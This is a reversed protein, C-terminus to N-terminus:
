VFTFDEGTFGNPIVAIQDSTGDLFIANDTFDYEAFSGTLQIEDVGPEFDQIIATGEGQYYILEGDGLVFTDQGNGGTLTDFETSGPSVDATNVGVLIDNGSMGTLIDNGAGGEIYNDANNGTVTDDNPTTIVNVFNEVATTFTEIEPVNLVTVQNDSLDVDLSAVGTGTSGDITNELDAPAIVLENGFLLQDTGYSGKDIVGAVEYAIAEDLGLYSITDVGDGGSITDNGFGGIILNDTNDGFISDNGETGSIDAPTPPLNITQAQLIASDTEDQLSPLNFSQAQRIGSDTEDQPFQHSTPNQSQRNFRRSEFETTLESGSNFSNSFNTNRNM